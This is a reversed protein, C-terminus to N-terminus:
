FIIRGNEMEFVEDCLLEVNREDHSTLLITKGQQKYELLLQQIQKTGDKDLGNFVEDLLLIDPNEMIAQAIRLRQKMGLSYKSVKKDKESLLGVVQLADLVEKENILKKIQALATLNELGSLHNLFQPEGIIVGANQIFDINKGIQQGNIVVKGSDLHLFGCLARFLMTKGSGNTGVFGYCKGKELYFSINDLVIQGKSQKSVNEVQILM